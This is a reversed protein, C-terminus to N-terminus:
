CPTLRLVNAACATSYILGAGTAGPELNGAIAQLTPEMELRELGFGAVIDVERELEAADVRVM